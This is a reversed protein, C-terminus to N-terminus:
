PKIRMTSSRKGDCIKSKELKPYEDQEKEIISATTTRFTIQLKTSHTIKHFTYTCTEGMATRESHCITPAVVSNFPEM